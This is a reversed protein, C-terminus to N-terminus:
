DMVFTVAMGGILLVPARIGVAQVGRIFNQINYSDSTMRSTLSPLGFEDLQNGSLRLSHYFLDQRVSYTTDSSIRVAHRNATINLFRCLWALFLMVCGWFIVMPISRTPAVEDILHELVYPLLLEVLTGAFKIAVVAAVGWRYKKLYSWIFKM